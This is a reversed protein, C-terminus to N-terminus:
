SSFTLLVLRSPPMPEDSDLHGMAKLGEAIEGDSFQGLLSDAHRLRLVRDVAEGVTSPIPEEVESTDILKFGQRAMTDQVAKTSPFAQVARKGGPLFRLISPWGRDSFLGRIYVVGDTVLVRRLESACQAADSLHHVVTSMWAVDFSDTELPLREGWGAVLSVMEPIGGYKMEARMADSPELAVVNCYCWRTWARAFIGTGAGVDLVRLPTRDPLYKTVASEWRALATDNLARGRSYSAAVDTRGYDVPV